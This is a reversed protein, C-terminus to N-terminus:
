GIGSSLTWVQNSAVINYPHNFSGAQYISLASAYADGNRNSLANPDSFNTTAGSVLVFGGKTPVVVWLTNASVGCNRLNVQGGKAGDVGVCRGSGAGYPSYQLEFAPFSGFHLRLNASIGGVGEKYLQNVTGQFTTTFDTAPDNNSNGWLIVKQGLASSRQYVDLVAGGNSVEVCRKGCSPTSAHATAASAVGLGGTIVSLAAAGAFVKSKISM